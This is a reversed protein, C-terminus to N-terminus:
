AAKNEKLFDYVLVQQQTKTGKKVVVRRVYHRVGDVDAFGWIQRATWGNVSEVWSDVAESEVTEPLWNQKLFKEDEDDDKLDSIKIWKTTGKVLGFIHDEHDRWEGNVQRLESTGEIGATGPQVIDIHVTGDDDTYEKIVLTVTM